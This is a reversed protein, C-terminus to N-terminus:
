ECSPADAPTLAFHDCDITRYIDGQTELWAAVGRVSEETWGLAAVADHVSGGAQADRAGELWECLTHGDEAWEAQLEMAAEESAARLARRLGKCRSVAGEMLPMCAEFDAYLENLTIPRHETLYFSDTISKVLKMQVHWGSKDKRVDPRERLMLGLEEHEWVREGPRSTSPRSSWGCRQLATESLVREAAGPAGRVLEVPPERTPESAKPKKAPAQAPQQTHLSLAALPRRTGAAAAASAANSPAATVATPPMASNHAAVDAQKRPAAATAAKRAPQQVAIAPRSGIPVAAVKTSSAAEVRHIPAAQARALEQKLLAITTAQERVRQELEAIKKDKADEKLAAVALAALEKCKNKSCFEKSPGRRKSATPACCEPNACRWGPPVADDAAADCPECEIAAEIM